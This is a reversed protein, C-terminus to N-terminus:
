VCCTMFCIIPLSTYSPARALSALNFYICFTFINAPRVKTWATVTFLPFLFTEWWNGFYLKCISFWDFHRLQFQSVFYLCTVFLTKIQIQELRLSIFSFNSCRIHPEFKKIETKGSSSTLKLSTLAKKIFSDETTLIYLDIIVDLFVLM